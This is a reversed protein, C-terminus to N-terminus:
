GAVGPTQVIPVIKLTYIPTAKCHAAYWEVGMDAKIKERDIDVRTSWTYHAEYRKGPIVVEPTTESPKPLTSKLVERSAKVWKALASLYNDVDETLDILDGRDMQGFNWGLACVNPQIRDSQIAKGPAFVVYLPVVMKAVSAVSSPDVPQNM